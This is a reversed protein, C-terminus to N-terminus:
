EGPRPVMVWSRARMDQAEEQLAVRYAEGGMGGHPDTADVITHPLPRSESTFGPPPQNQGNVQDLAKMVAAHDATAEVKPGTPYAFLGVREGPGLRSVFTKAARIVAPTQASEFSLCDITLFYAPGEDPAEVVPAPGPSPPTVSVSATEAPRHASVLEASIVRRKRGGITVSFADPALGTVPHGASDVVQVDVSLVDVGGRFVPRGGQEQASVMAASLLLCLSLNLRHM